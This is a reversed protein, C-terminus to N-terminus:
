GVIGSREISQVFRKQTFGYLILLPVIHIMMAACDYLMEQMFNRSNGESSVLHYGLGVLKTSFLNMNSSLVTTYFYDNWQWVFSFIFITSMMVMAGPLMIQVFTKFDSCGDIYAAEEIAVPINKFHQRLLFIFLGNKFAVATSSLILVPLPTGILNLGGSQFGMTLITLPSFYRFEMFLSLLVTQPPIVLTFIAMGLIVGSGKFKFRAIGYAVMACSAVQLLSCLTTYLITTILTKDYDLFYFVRTYNLFTFHKPIFFVSSDYLDSISKFSSALKIILPQIILFTLGIVLLMRFITWLATPMKKKMYPASFKESIKIKRKM